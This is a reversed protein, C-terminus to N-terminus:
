IVCATLLPGNRDLVLSELGKTIEDCLYTLGQRQNGNKEEQAVALIQVARGSSQLNRFEARLCDFHRDKEIIGPTM